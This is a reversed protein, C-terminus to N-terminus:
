AAARRTERLVDAVPAYEPCAPELLHVSSSARTMAVYMMRRVADAGDGMWGHEGFYGEKSLEPCVIVHRAQGGKVSHCTGTTIRPEAVLARPERKYVRAAYEGARRHKLMLADLWWDVDGRLAPHTATGLLDVLTTLPVTEGAHTEGFQDTMCHAEIAAKAGRALGKASVHQTWAHLDGWTRPKVAEGWVETRTRLYLSLATYVPGRCPNWRVEKRRHSNGFPIGERRLMDITGNLMYGCTTLIMVTGDLSRILDLLDTDDRLALPQELVEGPEDTPEWAIQRHNPIEAIWALAADRVARPCRYSQKLIREGTVDLSGMGGADSGRWGYLAQSEDGVVVTTETRQSWLKILEFELSSMDQVEDALLVRPNTIPQIDDRLCRELLATFDMRDRRECFEQWAEDYALEDPSWHARDTMRARHNQCAAHLNSAAGMTSEDELPDGHDQQVALEPHEAAFERMSGRTEALDPEDLARYCAAHLTSCNEDPISTERSGIEAAATRTLSVIQVASGGHKAAAIQSQASLWTTKGAGALPCGIARFIRSATM